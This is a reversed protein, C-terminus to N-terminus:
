LESRCSNVGQLLSRTHPMAIPGLPAGHMQIPMAIPIPLVPGSPPPVAIPSPTNPIPTPCQLLALCHKLCRSSCQLLALSIPLVPVTPVAIPGPTGPDSPSLANCYPWPTSWADPHVIPSPTNPACPNPNLLHGCPSSISPPPPPFLIFGWKKSSQLAACRVDRGGGMVGEQSAIIFWWRLVKSCFYGTVIAVPAARPSSRVSCCLLSKAIHAAGEQVCRATCPHLVFGFCRVWTARPRGWLLVAGNAVMLGM